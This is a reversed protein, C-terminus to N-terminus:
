TALEEIMTFIRERQGEDARLSLELLFAIMDQNNATRDTIIGEIGLERQLALSEESLGIQALQSDIDFQLKAGFQEGQTQLQAQTIARDTADKAYAIAEQSSLGALQLLSALATERGEAQQQIINTRIDALGSAMGREAQGFIQGLQSQAAGGFVGASALRNALEGRRFSSGEQIDTILQAEAIRREEDDIQQGSTFRNLLFKLLESQSGPGDEERGERGLNSGPGSLGGIFDKGGRPEGSEFQGTSPDFFTLDHPGGVKALNGRSNVLQGLTAALRAVSPDNPPLSNIQRILSNIDDDIPSTGGFAFQGVNVGHDQLFKTLIDAQIYNSKPTGDANSLSINSSQPPSEVPPPEVSPAAGPYPRHSTLTQPDPPTPSGYPHSSGTLIPDLNDVGVEPTTTFSSGKTIARNAEPSADPNVTGTSAGGSFLGKLREYPNASNYAM